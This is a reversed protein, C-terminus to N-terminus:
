ADATPLNELDSLDKHRGSATKNKRLSALDIVPVEIGDMMARVRKPYCDEFSVGSITSLIEVRLPPVGIRLIKGETAFLDLSLTDSGFGFDRLAAIVKAANAPSLAVWLDMDGTPRPYGHYTVAYGGILLYEASHTNLLRLLEKFDAPLLPPAM